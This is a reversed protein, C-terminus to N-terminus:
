KAASARRAYLLFFAAMGIEGSTKKNWPFYLVM